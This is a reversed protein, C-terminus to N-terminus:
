KTAKAKKEAPRITAEGVALSRAHRQRVLEVLRKDEASYTVIQVGKHEIVLEFMDNGEEFTSIM